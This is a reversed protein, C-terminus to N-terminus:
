LERPNIAVCVYMYFSELCLYSFRFDYLSVNCLYSSFIVFSDILRLSSNQMLKGDAQQILGPKRKLYLLIQNMQQLLLCMIYQLKSLSFHKVTLWIYGAEFCFLSFQSCSEKPEPTLASLM